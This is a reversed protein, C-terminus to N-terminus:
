DIPKWENGLKKGESMRKGKYNKKEKKSMVKKYSQDSEFLTETEYKRNRPVLLMQKIYNIFFKELPENYPSYFGCLLAPAAGIAAVVLCFPTIFWINLILFLPIGIAAAIAICTINRLTFPGIFKPKYSNIDKLVEREIM